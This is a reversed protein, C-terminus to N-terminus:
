PRRELAVGCACQGEAFKGPSQGTGGSGQIHSESSVAYEAELQLTINEIRRIGLPIWLPEGRQGM